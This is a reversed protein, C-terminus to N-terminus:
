RDARVLADEITKAAEREPLGTALGADLMVDFVQERTLGDRGVLPALSWVEANLRTRREGEELVRVRESAHRLAAQAYGRGFRKRRKSPRYTPQGQARRFVLDLVWQPTPRLATDWDFGQWQYRRGSPHLSPPIVVYGGKGRYDVKFKNSTCGEGTPQVYIHLGRGTSAMPGVIHHGDTNAEDLAAFGKPGDIDLVDFLVGTAAGIGADPHRRWWSRLVAVDTTADLYGHGVGGCEGRCGEIKCREFLPKKDHLPFLPWGREAGEEVTHLMESM